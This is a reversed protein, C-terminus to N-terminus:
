MPNAICAVVSHFLTCMQSVKAVNWGWLRPVPSLHRGWRAESNQKPPYLLTIDEAIWSYPIKFGMMQLGPDCSQRHGRVKEKLLVHCFLQQKKHRERGRQPPPPMHGEPGRPDPVMVFVRGHLLCCKESSYFHYNESSFFIIKKNKSM